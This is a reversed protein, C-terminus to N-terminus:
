NYPLKYFFCQCFLVTGPMQVHLPLLCVKKKHLFNARSFTAPFTLKREALRWCIVSLGDDFCLTIHALRYPFLIDTEPTSASSGEAFLINYKTHSAVM